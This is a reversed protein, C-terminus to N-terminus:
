RGDLQWAFFRLAQAEAWRRPRWPTGGDVFAVHGGRATFQPVLYPSEAVAEHPLARRSSLPDDASAILLAPRRIAPLFQGCSQSRWYQEASQFGHLPATVLEDFVHFTRCARVAAPDYIGPYQREKEIAKPILTKLFYRSIAGRWRTDCRNACAVLDFPPSVGAAALLAPPAKAGVEGLWKLLVNAGLSFGLAFLPAAPFRAMLRSVVRALDSTEGSHYTRRARNMVGGCTRFELAVARWGLSEIRRAAEHVGTSDRGGELGHLVLVTPARPTDGGLFHLRLRDGDPTPWKETRWALPRRPSQLAALTQALGPRAWWVPVFPTRALQALARDKATDASM